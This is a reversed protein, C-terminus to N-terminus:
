PIKCIIDFHTNEFAYNSNITEGTDAKTIHYNLDELWSVLDKSSSNGKKLNNNDLEIFLLPKFKRISNEAGKLVNMEFGEVDMKIFDIKQIQQKVVFTDLKTAKVAQNSDNKQKSMAIGGSNNNSPKQFFLTDENDSLAINNLTINEFQNLSINHKAREFLYPVPEFGYNLGNPNYKAFNLLTEGINTGVDLVVMGDKILNYLIERPETKIGFYLTYEMYDSIDLRFNIDDRTAVRYSNVTYQNNNPLLKVYFNDYTKGQTKKVLWKELGKQKFIARVPRLIKRKLSTM